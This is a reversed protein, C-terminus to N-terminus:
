DKVMIYWSKFNDRVLIISNETEKKKIKRPYVKRPRVTKGFTRKKAEILSLTVVKTEIIAPSEISRIVM